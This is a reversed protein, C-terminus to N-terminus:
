NLTVVTEPSRQLRVEQNSGTTSLQVTCQSTLYNRAKVCAPFQSTKEEGFERIKDELTV